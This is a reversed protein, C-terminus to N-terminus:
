ESPAVPLRLVFVAGHQPQSFVEISGGHAEAIKKVLSLGLGTGPIQEEMARRGRYFPEFVHPLDAPEIGPGQDEVRIEVIAEGSRMARIKIEAGGGHKISNNLLNRLCHVLSAPEGNVLPLDPPLERIVNAGAAELDPQCDALVQDIVAAVEIPQKRLEARGSALGAFRLVQEVMEGLRKAHDRIVTGYRRTQDPGAAVGDALNQSASSIVALPTRLEHTVGAVFEMQRRALSRSRRSSAMLMAISGGMLMLMGFSVALNRTRIGAVLQDVSGSKYAAAV